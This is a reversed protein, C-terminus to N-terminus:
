RRTKHFGRDAARSKGRKARRASALPHRSPARRRRPLPHQQQQEASYQVSREVSRQLDRGARLDGGPAQVGREATRPSPPAFRKIVTGQASRWTEGPQVQAARVGPVHVAYVNNVVQTTVPRRAHGSSAAFTLTVSAVGDPVVGSFTGDDDSAPM